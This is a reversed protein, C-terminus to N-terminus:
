QWGALIPKLAHFPIPSLISFTPLQIIYNELYNPEYKTREAENQKLSTIM